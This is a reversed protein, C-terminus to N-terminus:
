KREGRDGRDSLVAVSNELKGLRLNMHQEHTELKERIYDKITDTQAALKLELKHDGQGLKEFSLEGTKLDERINELTLSFQNATNNLQHSIARFREDILKTNSEHLESSLTHFKRNSLDEQRNFKAVTSRMSFLIISIGASILMNVCGFAISVYFETGSTM